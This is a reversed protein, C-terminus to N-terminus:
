HGMENWKSRLFVNPFYIRGTVADHHWDMLRFHTNLVNQKMKFMFGIVLTMVKNLFITRYFILCVLCKLIKLCFIWRFCFWFMLSLLWYVNQITYVWVRFWHRFLWISLLAQLFIWDFEGRSFSIYMARRATDLQNNPKSINVKLDCHFMIISSM